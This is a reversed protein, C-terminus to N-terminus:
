DPAGGLIQLAIVAGTIILYRPKRDRLYCDYFLIILPLWVASTLFAVNDLISIMYGSFMFVVGAILSSYTDYKWRRMLLFMFIGALYYHLIIFYKFGVQFPLVYYIVSLPYFISSQLNALFPVGSALYPNWLPIEGSKITEAAFFRRPNFFNYIDRSAFTQESFIVPSFNIITISLLFVAIVITDKKM